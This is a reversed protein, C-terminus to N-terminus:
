QRRIAKHANVVNLYDHAILVIDFRAKVSQVAAKELSYHKIIANMTMDDTIVVGNFKMEERLLDAIISKSMSAPYTADINPLLIHTIM